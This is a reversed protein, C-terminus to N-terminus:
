IIQKSENSTLCEEENKLRLVYESWIFSRSFYAFLSFISRKLNHSIIVLRNDIVTWSVVEKLLCSLCTPLFSEGNIIRHCLPHDDANCAALNILKSFSSALILYTYLNRHRTIITLSSPIHFVSFVFNLRFLSSHNRHSLSLILVSPIRYSLRQYPLKSSRSDM